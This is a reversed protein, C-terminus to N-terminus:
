KNNLKKKKSEDHTMMTSNMEKMRNQKTTTRLRARIEDETVFGDKNLDIENTIFDKLKKKADEASLGKFDKM